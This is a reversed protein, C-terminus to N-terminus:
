NNKLNIYADSIIKFNTEENYFDHFSKKCNNKLNYLKSLDEDYIKLIINELEKLDNYIFGNYGNKIPEPLASINNVIVPTGLMLSELTVLGYTEFGISPFIVAISRSIIKIKEEDSIYGLIEINTLNNHKIIKIISQKLPGDGIIKLKINKNKKFIDILNIIGKEESLRGVFLFYKDDYFQSKLNIEKLNIPIKKLIIKKEDIGYEVLLNKVFLSPSVFYSIFNIYIKLKRLLYISIKLQFDYLKKSNCIKFINFFNLKLCTYCINKNRLCLGNSCFFRFNYITQIIPIKHKKLIFYISPSIYSYINYVHAIDPKNKRIIGDIEKYTQYSFFFNFFIRLKKWFNNIEKNHKTYLIVEYGNKRLLDVEKDFAVDEGGRNKYYNHCM